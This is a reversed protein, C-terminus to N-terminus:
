ILQIENQQEMLKRRALIVSAQQRVRLGVEQNNFPKSLYDCGGHEFAKIVTDSSHLATIFIISINENLPDEKIIDAVQYGNMGPMMVDLLVIDPKWKKMKELAAFGNNVIELQYAFKKLVTKLLLANAPMDDVILVRLSALEADIIGKM